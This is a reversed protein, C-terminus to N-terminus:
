HSCYCRQHRRYENGDHQQQKAKQTQRVITTSRHHKEFYRYLPNTFSEIYIYIRLRIQTLTLKYGRRPRSNKRWGRWGPRAPKLWQVLGITIPSTCTCLTRSVTKWDSQRGVQSDTRRGIGLDFGNTFV